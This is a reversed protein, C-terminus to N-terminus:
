EDEGVKEWCLIKLVYFLIKRQQSIALADFDEWKLKKFADIRKHAKAEVKEVRLEEVTKEHRQIADFHINIQEAIERPTLPKKIKM